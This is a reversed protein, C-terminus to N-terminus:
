CDEWQGLGSCSFPHDTEYKHMEHGHRKSGRIPRRSERIDAQMAQWRANAPSIRTTNNRKEPTITNWYKDKCKTGKRSKCFAQAYHGKKFETNCSPCNIIEGVKAAKAKDYKEKLKKM